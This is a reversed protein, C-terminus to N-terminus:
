HNGASICCASNHILLIIQYIQCGIKVLIKHMNFTKQKLWCTMVLGGVQIYLPGYAKSELFGPKGQHYANTIKPCVIMQGEHHFAVIKGWQGFLVSYYVHRSRGPFFIGFPHRLSLNDKQYHFFFFSQLM